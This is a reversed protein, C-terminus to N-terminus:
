FTNMGKYIIDEDEKHSELDLSISKGYCVPRIISQGYEDKEDTVLNVFGASTWNGRVDSHHMGINPILVFELSDKNLVYKMKCM